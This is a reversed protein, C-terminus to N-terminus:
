QPNRVVDYDYIIKAAHFNNTNSGSSNVIHLAYGRGEVTTRSFSTGNTIVVVGTSGNIYPGQLLTPTNLSPTTWDHNQEILNVQLDNLSQTVLVELDTIEVGYPLHIPITVRSNPPMVMRGSQSLTLPEYYADITGSPVGNIADSAHLYLVQNLVQTGFKFDGTGNGNSDAVVDGYSNITGGTVYGSVSTQVYGTSDLIIDGGQLYIRGGGTEIDGGESDILGSGSQIIGGESDITGGGSQIIGGESDITGTGSLINGGETDIDNNDMRLTGRADIDGNFYLDFIPSGTATETSIMPTFSGSGPSAIIKLPISAIGGYDAVFGDISSLLLSTQEDNVFNYSNTRMIPRYVRVELSTGTEPSLSPTTGDLNLINIDTNNILNILYIGDNGASSNVLEVYDLKLIIDASVGTFYLDVGARTCTIITPGLSVEAAESGRLFDNGSGDVLNVRCQFAYLALMRQLIDIGGETDKVDFPPSSSTIVSRNGDKVLRFPAHFKDQAALSLNEQDFVVAENAVTIDRGDGSGGAGDYAKQLTHGGGGSLDVADTTTSNSTSGEVYGIICYPSSTWPNTASKKVSVGLAAVQYDATAVSLTAQGLLGATTVSNEGSGGDYSVTLTEFAVADDASMPDTLWVRVERGSYDVGNEFITDVVLKITGSGADAASTPNNLEGIEELILDYEVQGTRPNTQVGSPIEIYHMGVWYYTAATDEFPINDTRTSGTLKLIHGEGDTGILPDTAVTFTGDGNNTLVFPYTFMGQSPFIRSIGDYFMDQLYNLFNGSMRSQSLFRKLVLNVFSDGTPM